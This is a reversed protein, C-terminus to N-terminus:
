LAIISNNTKEEKPKISIVKTATSGHPYHNLSGNVIYLTLRVEYDIFEKNTTNIIKVIYSEIEEPNEQSYQIVLDSQKVYVADTIEIGLGTLTAFLSFSFGFIGIITLIGVIISAILLGKSRKTKIIKEM